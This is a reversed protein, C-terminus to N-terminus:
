QPSNATRAHNAAGLLAAADDTIVQVPVLAIQEAFPGPANFAELFVDRACSSLIGRAAGGAFHIGGYPLYQFVLERAVLGLMQATLAITRTAATNRAPDYAALIQQGNWDDGGSLIQFLRSLARGSFLHEYTRFRTAQSGVADALARSVSSPLSAHGLESEIVVPGGSTSKVLCINFGTGLGVVLAQNNSPGAAGSPRILTLQAATLDALSYGLAVLDNVLHVPGSPRAPLAAAIVDVDFRWDRNTLRARGCTVPGAVAICGGTIGGAIDGLDHADAYRSLVEYFSAFAANEYRELASVQRGARILAIRTNSGGVDAVLLTM